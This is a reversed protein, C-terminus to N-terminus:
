KKIPENVDPMRNQFRSLWIQDIRHPIQRPQIRLRHVGDSRLIIFKPDDGNSAWGWAGAPHVDLWNGLMSGWGTGIWRDSQLWISDSSIDDENCKGRLWVTYRGAPAEYQMEVYVEPAPLPKGSAGSTLEMAWGTSASADEILRVGTPSKETISRADLIVDRDADCAFPMPARNIAAAALWNVVSFAIMGAYVIHLAALVITKGAKSFLPKFTKMGFLFRLVDFKRILYFYLGATLAFADIFVILWKVFDAIELPMVFYGFGLIITQHLIYFPLVGENLHRLIPRDFSLHQLGLGLIALIWFWAGWFRLLLAAWPRIAYPIAGGLAGFVLYLYAATFAAALLLSINWNRKICEMFNEGSAIVFGGILFWLYYLFGWGGSGVSLISAPFILKILLLPLPFILYMAKPSSLLSTLRNLGNGWGGQLRVFLRYCLLSYLFLFLLYWLHMGHFAFNGPCNPEFYLGSFYIKYFSFFSGSFVHKSTRELYIQLASHTCAGVIVPVMLRSFKDLYFKKFGGSKNLAYFLSAGSIVFFLPMLWTTMFGNWIEVWLYNNVNKIHWDWLDFFRTSHFFFVALIAMVRIWDLEHRRAPANM